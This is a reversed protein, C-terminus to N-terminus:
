YPFIYFIDVLGGVLLYGDEKGDLQRPVRAFGWGAHDGDEATAEDSMGVAFCWPGM